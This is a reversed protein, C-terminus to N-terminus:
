LTCARRAREDAEEQFSQRKPKDAHNLYTRLMATPSKISLSNVADTLFTCLNKQWDHGAAEADAMIKAIAEAQLRAFEPRCDLVQRVQPTYKGCRKPLDDGVGGESSIDSSAYACVTDRSTANRLAQIDQQKDRFRKQRERAKAAAPDDSVADRHKAYNLLQWGGEVKEIRRGDNEPSRSEADPAMFVSLAKDCDAESVRSLMALSKRTAGVYGDQNAMALLTIWTVRVYDPEDWISSTIIRHFLKTYSM